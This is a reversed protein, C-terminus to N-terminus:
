RGSEFDFNSKSPRVLDRLKRAPNGAVTTYAGVSKVVVSGAGIVAGEGIEIKGLILASAGIVVGNGITPCGGGSIRHGITVGNRVVVNEGIIAHDNVVLGTGHYITLGGGVSTKPRLEIGLLFETFVRHMVVIPLSFKRPKDLDRMAIQCLRFSMMILRAKPDRRNARFDARLARRGELPSVTRCPSRTVIMNLRGNLGEDHAHYFLILGATYRVTLPGLGAAM